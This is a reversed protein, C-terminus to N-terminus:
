FWFLAVSTSFGPNSSAKASNALTVLQLLYKLSYVDPRCGPWLGGISTWLYGSTGTRSLNLRFFTSVATQGRRVWASIRPEFQGSNWNNTLSINTPPGQQLWVRHPFHVAKASSATGLVCSWMLSVYLFPSAAGGGKAPIGRWSKGSSCGCLSVRLCVKSWTLTIGSPWFKLLNSKWIKMEQDLHTLCSLVHCRQKCVM